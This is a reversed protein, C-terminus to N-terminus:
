EVALHEPDVVVKKPPTLLLVLPIAAISLWMMLTFDDLYAIMAAQANVAQDLLSIVTDGYAGLARAINPDAGPVTFPSIMSGADAHAIQTQRALVGVSLSVGVSGGLNRLLSYFSAADTRM